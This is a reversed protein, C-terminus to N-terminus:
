KKATSSRKLSEAATASPFQMKRILEKFRPETRLPNWTNQSNIWSLRPSRQEYARDLYDLAGKNDGARVSFAALAL